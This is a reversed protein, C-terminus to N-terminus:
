ADAVAGMAAATDLAVFRLFLEKLSAHCRLDLGFAVVDAVTGLGGSVWLRRLRLAQFPPANRLM